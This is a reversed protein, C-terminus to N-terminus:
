KLYHPTEYRPTIDEDIEGLYNLQYVRYCYSRKTARNYPTIIEDEVRKACWAIADALTRTKIIIDETDEDYDHCVVAYSPILENAVELATNIAQKAYTLLQERSLTDFRGAGMASVADVIAERLKRRTQESQVLLLYARVNQVVNGKHTVCLPAEDEFGNERGAPTDYHIHYRGNRNVIALGSICKIINNNKVITAM